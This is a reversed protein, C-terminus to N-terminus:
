YRLMKVKTGGRVKRVVFVRDFENERISDVPAKGGLAKVIPLMTNAHAVIVIHKGWDDHRTLTYIVSEGTTDPKYVATDLSLAVRLSDATERSRRYPTVYIKNLASDKLLRYLCGAREYGAPTLSSDRGEYREAHRVVYFTGTLFTSDDSVPVPQRVPPKPKCAVLGAMTILLFFRM